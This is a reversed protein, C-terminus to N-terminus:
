KFADPGFKERYKRLEAKQVGELLKIEDGILQHWNLLTGGKLPKIKPRLQPQGEKERRENEAKLRAQEEAAARRLIDALVDIEAALAKLNAEAVNFLRLREEADGLTRVKINNATVIKQFIDYSARALLRGEYPVERNPLRKARDQTFIRIERATDLFQAASEGRDGKPVSM